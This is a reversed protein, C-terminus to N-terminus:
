NILYSNADKTTSCYVTPYAPYHPQQWYWIPQPLVYPAPRVTSALKKALLSAIREVDEDSLSKAM